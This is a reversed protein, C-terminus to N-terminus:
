EQKEMEEALIQSRRDMDEKWATHHAEYGTQLYYNEEFDM